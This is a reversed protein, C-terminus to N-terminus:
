AQTMLSFLVTFRAGHGDDGQAFHLEGGIQRVLASILKMGLGRTATPDFGEPLGHGDDSVSLACGTESTAELRVLVRGKAYKISNTLLESAIFALPIATTTPIKLELGEVTVVGPLGANSAMGSVDDCLKEIYRKFEVSEAGDLAHLHQHVRGLIAVRNAAITLQTAAEDNNTARSQVTLLSTILQLGNLLRHECEKSLIDKQQILKEMQHVLASERVLSKALTAETIRHNELEREYLSIASCSVIPCDAPRQFTTDPTLSHLRPAALLEIHISV